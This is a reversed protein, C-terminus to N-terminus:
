ATVLQKEKLLTDIKARDFGLVLDGAIDTVPVGQFAGNSKEMLEEYAEKDEEIDKKVYGVGLKQLYQEETKCFACWTTSYIIVKSDNDDITQKTPEDM